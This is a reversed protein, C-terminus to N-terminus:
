SKTRVLAVSSYRKSSATKRVMKGFDTEHMNMRKHYQGVPIFDELIISEFVIMSDYCGSYANNGGRGIRMKM